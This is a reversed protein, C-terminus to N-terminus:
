FGSLVIKGRAKGSEILAHARRLNAANITGFHDALTTRLVGADVLEAVHVLIDHQEIMDPTQYMSRTYMLEWHLSISKPKLIPV